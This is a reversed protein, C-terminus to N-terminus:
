AFFAHNGISLLYPRARGMWSSPRVAETCFFLMESNYRYGEMCLKAAIVSEETPERYIEATYAPTFQVGYKMDFIVDYVNDPYLPSDVRNYVVAGVALKGLLPEGRSEASILRSLWYLEVTDYFSDAPAIPSAEGTVTVRRTEGDWEVDVGFAKAMPRVAVMMTGDEIYNDGICYIARDNAIIYPDGARATVTMGRWSASATATDGDWGVVAEGGSMVGCFMRFPVRTVSDVIICKDEAFPEGNMYVGVDGTEASVGITLVSACIVTCVSAALMRCLKKVKM